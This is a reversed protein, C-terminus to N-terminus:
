CLGCVRWCLSCPGPSPAVRARLGTRDRTNLSQASVWVEGGVLVRILFDLGLNCSPAVVHVEECKRGELEQGQQKGARCMGLSCLRDQWLAGGGGTGLGLSTWLLLSSLAGEHRLSFRRM